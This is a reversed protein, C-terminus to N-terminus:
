QSRAPRERILNVCVTGMLTMALLLLWAWRYAGTVDVIYGFVPPSLLNGIQQFTMSFGVATAASAAGALEVIFAFYVGNWGMATAGIAFSLLLLIPTPLGQPVVATTLITASSLASVLLLVRRRSGGFVRDSVLGWGIRGLVGGAYAVSLMFGAEVVPMQQYEKLYLVLYTLAAMQVGTLLGAMCGLALMNRSLLQRGVDQLSIARAKMPSDSPHERYAFYSFVGATVVVAGTGALIPRWGAGEALLPLLAAMIMGAIPFGAQKISMATGRSRAPFWQAVAKTVAPNAPGHVVGLVVGVALMSWYSPIGAMTIALLGAAVL